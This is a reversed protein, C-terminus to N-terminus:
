FIYVRTSCCLLLLVNLNAWLQLYNGRFVAISLSFYFFLSMFDCVFNNSINSYLIARADPPIKPQAIWRSDQLQRYKWELKQHKTEVMNLSHSLYLEHFHYFSYVIRWHHTCWAHGQQRCPKINMKRNSSINDHTEYASM